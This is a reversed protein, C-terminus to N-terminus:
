GHESDETDENEEIDSATLSGPMSRSVNGHHHPLCFHSDTLMQKIQSQRCRAKSHSARVTALLAKKPMDQDVDFDTHQLHQAPKSSLNHQSSQPM